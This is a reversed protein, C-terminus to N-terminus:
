WQWSIMLLNLRQYEQVITLYQKVLLSRWTFGLRIHEASASSESLPITPWRSRVMMLIERNTLNSNLCSLTEIYSSMAPTIKKPWGIKKPQGDVKSAESIARFICKFRQATFRYTGGATRLDQIDQPRSHPTRM